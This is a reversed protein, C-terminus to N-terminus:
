DAQRPRAAGSTELQGGARRVCRFGYAERKFCVDVFGPSESARASCRCRDEGTAWCGGRVVRMDGSAPGRPDDGASEPGYSEGYFDNCWEFLNGHMDYLGWPNPSKQRVPHSTKNSDSKFWAHKGLERPDDGFSWRTTTGARCAYEWEAETPLRYEYGKPLRGASRERASLKRCFEVAYRWSVGDM